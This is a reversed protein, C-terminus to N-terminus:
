AARWMAVTQWAFAAQFVKKKEFLWSLAIAKLKSAITDKCFRELSFVKIDLYHSCNLFSISAKISLTTFAQFQYYEVIAFKALPHHAVEDVVRAETDGTGIGAGLAPIDPRAIGLVDDGQHLHGIRCGQAVEDIIHLRQQGLIDRGRVDGQDDINMGVNEEAQKGLELLRAHLAYHAARLRRALKRQALSHLQLLLSASSPISAAKALGKQARRGSGALGFM